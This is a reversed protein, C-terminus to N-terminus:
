GDDGVEVAVKIKILLTWCGKRLYELEPKDDFCNADEKRCAAIIKELDIKDGNVRYTKVGNREGFDCIQVIAM